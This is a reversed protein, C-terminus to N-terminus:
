WPECRTRRSKILRGIWKQRTSRPSTGPSYPYTMPVIGDINELRDRERLDHVFTIWRFPSLKLVATAVLVPIRNGNKRVLEKEFPTCAGFRLGEEHALEDLGVYEPPTLDPLTYGALTCIRVATASSNSFRMM